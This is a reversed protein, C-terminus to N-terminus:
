HWLLQLREKANKLAEEYKSLKLREEQILYPKAKNIFGENSLKSAAREVENELNEVEKRLREIEKEKDFLDELYIIAKDIRVSVSDENFNGNIVTEKVNALSFYQICDKFYEPDETVLILKIKQSNPVNLEARLNRIAKIGVKIIEIKKEEVSYDLFDLQKNFLPFESVVLSKKGFSNRIEETIFPAFPHMLKLLEFLVDRLVLVNLSANTGDITIKSMEIYYDCYDEWIFGYLTELALGFEYKEMNETVENIIKNLKSILWRDSPFYCKLQVEEPEKMKVFRAANWIKNLFNRSTEVKSLSFRQDSGLASGMILTIRLADAGYEKVVEVPDVGNGLSKSFKRGQEDRILGNIIVKNFPVKGTESISSFVMRVVWFFIIDYGTILTETPFFRFFDRGNPFDLTSFPWFASSFWTDLVDEDQTLEDGGCEECVKEDKSAIISIHGCECTYAPIRHGWWLQRSICWDKINELWHAYTKGYRSPIFEILKSEYADLAPAALKDMKVFWQLKNLPEVVTNCRDHTGISNEIDEEKVFQGLEELIKIIKVRAEYRDLNEFEPHIGNISGDDNMINIQELEHRAALENDNFDHAPTIKVAGTGFDKDVYSDEIIKVERNVIPIIVTKGILHKYREDEPNVAVAVDGLITEPRTTAIKITEESEKIKYEFHWLKGKNESHVVEADSITTKCHTCWNILKEGRYIHGKKYFSIFVKEVLESLGDDLTFRERSWDASLGLTKFQNTIINGYEEKWEWARKLFAERGIDKKSKPKIAEVVKAETSISAHDSGPLLLVSYGQMRKFRATIDYITANLAHGMHLIGTINPPPLVMSFSKGYEFPQFYGKKLWKEYIEKEKKPDFNKDM